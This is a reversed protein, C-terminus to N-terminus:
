INRRCSNPLNTRFDDVIIGTTEEMEEGSVIDGNPLLTATIKYGRSKGDRYRVVEWERPHRKCLERCYVVVKQVDARLGSFRLIETASVVSGFFRREATSDLACRDRAAAFYAERLKEAADTEILLGKFRKHAFARFGNRIATETKPALAEPLVFENLLFYAFAPLQERVRALFASATKDDAALEPIEAFRAAYFFSAKDWIRAYDPASMVADENLMQVVFVCPKAIPTIAEKFKAEIAQGSGYNLGKLNEAFSERASTNRESAIDDIFGVERSLLIANFKENYVLAKSADFRRGGLLPAIVSEFLTTKGCARDGVIHMSPTQNAESQLMSECRKPALSYMDVPIARNRARESARLWNRLHAYFAPLQTPSDNDDLLSRVLREVDPFAGKQPTVFRPSTEVLYLHRGNNGSDDAYLGRTHMNREYFVRSVVRTKYLMCFFEKVRKRPFGSAEAWAKASGRSLKMVPAGERVLLFKDDPTAFIQETLESFIAAIEEIPIEDANSFDPVAPISELPASNIYADADFSYFTHKRSNTNSDAVVGYFAALANNRAAATKEDVDDAVRLIVKLGRTPSEFAALCYPLRSFLKKVRGFDANPNDKRDFDLLQFGSRSVCDADARSNSYVGFVSLQPLIERKMNSAVGHSKAARIRSVENQYTGAKIKRLEAVIDSQVSEKAKIHPFVSVAGISVVGSKAHAAASRPNDARSHKKPAPAARYRKTVGRAEALIACAAEKNHAMAAAILTAQTVNALPSRLKKEYSNPSDESEPSWEQLLAAATVKDGGCAHCVSAIIKIWENYDQYESAPVLALLKRAAEAGIPANDYEVM